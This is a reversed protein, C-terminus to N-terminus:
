YKKIRYFTGPGGYGPTCFIDFCLFDLIKASVGGGIAKINKNKINESIDYILIQM